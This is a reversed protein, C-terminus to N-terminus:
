FSNSHISVGLTALYKSQSINSPWFLSYFSFILVVMGFSHECFSMMTWSLYAFGKRRFSLGDEKVDNVVDKKLLIFIM